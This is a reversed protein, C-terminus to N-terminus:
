PQMTVHDWACLMRKLEMDRVWLTWTEEVDVEEKDTMMGMRTVSARCLGNMTMAAAVRRSQGTLCARVMEEDWNIGKVLATSSNGTLMLVDISQTVSPVLQFMSQKEDDGENTNTSTRIRGLLDRQAIIINSLLIRHHRQVQDLLNSIATTGFDSANHRSKSLLPTAELRMFHYIRQKTSSTTSNNLSDDDIKTKNIKTRTKAKSKRKKHQKVSSMCQRTDDHNSVEDPGDLIDIITKILGDDDCGGGDGSGDDTEITNKKKKKTATTTTNTDNNNNNGIVYDGRVNTVFSSLVSGVRVVTRNHPVVSRRTRNGKRIRSNNNQLSDIVIRTDDILGSFLVVVFCASLVLATNQTNTVTVM